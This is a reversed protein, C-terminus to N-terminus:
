EYWSLLVFGDGGQGGTGGLFAGGGVGAGGGGGGSGDTASSGNAGAHNGTGMGSGGAGGLLSAGGNSAGATSGGGGGGGGGGTLWPSASTPTGGTGGAQYSSGGTWPSAMGFYTPGGKGGTGTSAGGGGGGGGQLSFLYSSSGGAGGALIARDGGLAMLVGVTSRRGSTSPPNSGSADGVGGIGGAGPFVDVDGSVPYPNSVTIVAGGGGGGGGSQTSATVSSTGGGGGGGGGVLLISDIETCTPPRVWRQAVAVIEACLTQTWTGTGATYGFTNTGGETGSDERSLWAAYYVMDTFFSSVSIPNPQLGTLTPATPSGSSGSTFGVVLSGRLAPAITVTSTAGVTVNPGNISQTTTLAPQVPQANLLARVTCFGGLGTDAAVGTVTVTMPASTTVYRYWLAGQSTSVGGAGAPSLALRTWTGGTSDTVTLTALVGSPNARSGLHVLLLTKNAPTFVASTHATAWTGPGAFSMSPPANVLDETVVPNDAALFKQTRRTLGTAVNFWTGPNISYRLASSAPQDQRYVFLPTTPTPPHAVVLADQAGQDVASYILSPVTSSTSNVIAGSSALSTLLANVAPSGWTDGSIVPPVSTLVAAFTWQGLTRDILWVEGVRPLPGNGRRVNASITHSRGRTDKVLANVGDISEVHVTLVPVVKATTNVTPSV